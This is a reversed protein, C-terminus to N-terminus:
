RSAGSSSIPSPVDSIWRITIPLFSRCRWLSYHRLVVVDRVGVQAVHPGGQRGVVPQLVLHRAGRRADRADPPDEVEPRAGALGRAPAERLMGAGPDDGDVRARLHERDRRAHEPGRGLQAARPELVRQGGPGELEHDRGEGDVVEVARALRLEEPADRRHQRGAPAEDHGVDHDRRRRDRRGRREVGRDVVRVRDGVEHGPEGRRAELGRDRPRVAVEGHDGALRRPPGGPRRRPRGGGGRAGGIIRSAEDAEPPWQVGLAFRRRPLEIAEPLDDLTAHGTVELGTGLAAIGQHHHSKTAHLTEGAARAALSGPVLRVDHDADDFSGLSRRHDEHGLDDPLHQSLTGGRAVNMIQMGRCVGLFPVDAEMAATALVLEFADREPRIGATQPHAPAGYTAPDLDAGGALLLGDLLDLLEHAREAADPDPALLVPIGGARQVATVYSRPLLVAEDDM